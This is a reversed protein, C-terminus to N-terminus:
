LLSRRSPWASRTNVHGQYRTIKSLNPLQDTEQLRRPWREDLGNPTIIWRRTRWYAAAIATVFNTIGPREACHLRRPPGSARAYGDRGM